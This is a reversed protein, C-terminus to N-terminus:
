DEEPAGKKRRGGGPASRFTVQKRVAKEGAVEREVKRVRFRGFGAVTLVGEEMNELASAVGAFAGRVLAAAKKEPIGELVKPHSASVVNILEDIKM